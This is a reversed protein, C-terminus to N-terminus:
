KVEILTYNNNIFVLAYEKGNDESIEYGKLNKKLIYM